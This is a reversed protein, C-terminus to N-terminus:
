KKDFKVPPVVACKRFYLCLISCLIMLFDNGNIVSIYLKFSFFSIINATVRDNM